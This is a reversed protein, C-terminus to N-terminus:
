SAKLVIVVLAIDTKLMMVGADGPLENRTALSSLFDVLHRPLDQIEVGSALLAVHWPPQSRVFDAFGDSRTCALKHLPDERARYNM